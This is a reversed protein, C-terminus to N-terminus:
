KKAFSNVNTRLFDAVENVAERAEPLVECMGPYAHPMNEKITLQVKVGQAQAKKAVRLADDLLVESSSANIYLPPMGHYDAFWPSVLPDTLSAKGAYMAAVQPIIRMAIMTDSQQNRIHSEGSHTLDCWPSFCVGAAPMPLKEERIKLLSVLTLNGGASDGAMVINKADYNQDLLYRYCEMADHLAAPFPDEPALRYDVLLVKAQTAESLQAAIGYHTKVGGMVYAGGHFYLIVNQSDRASEHVMWECPLQKIKIAEHICHKPVRCFVSARKAFRRQSEVFQEATQNRDLWKSFRFFLHFTKAQWSM